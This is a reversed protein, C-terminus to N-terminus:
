CGDLNRKYKTNVADVLDFLRTYLDVDPLDTFAHTMLHLTEEAYRLAFDQKADILTDTMNDIRDCLKIRRVEICEKATQLNNAYIREKRDKLYVIDPRKSYSTLGFTYDAVTKGFLYEIVQKTVGCDEIVDHLWAAAIMEETVNPLTSVLGAVRSVHVIYPVKVDGILNNRFQGSHAATAFGAARIILSDSNVNTMFQLSM